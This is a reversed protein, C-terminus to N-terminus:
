LSKSKDAKTRNLGSFLGKLLHKSDNDTSLRKVNGMSLRTILTTLLELLLEGLSRSERSSHSRESVIRIRELVETRIAERRTTRERSNWSTIGGVHSTGLARTNGTTRGHHATRTTRTSTRERRKSIRELAIGSEKRRSVSRTSRRTRRRSTVIRRGARRGFQRSRKGALNGGLKGTLLVGRVEEKHHQQRKIRNNNNSSSSSTQKKKHTHTLSHSKGIKETEEEREQREIEIEIEIEIM